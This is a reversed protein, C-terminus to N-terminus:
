VCLEVNICIVNLVRHRVTFSELDVGARRQRGDQKGHGNRRVASPRQRLPHPPPTSSFSDPSAVVFASSVHHLSLSSDLSLSAERARIEAGRGRRRQHLWLGRRGLSTTVDWARSREFGFSKAADTSRPM